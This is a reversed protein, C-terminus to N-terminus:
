LLAGHDRAGHLIRAIWLGDLVPMFYIVYVGVSFSRYKGTAFEPRREGMEPNTALLECATVIKELFRRAIGRSGTQFVIHVGIDVLDQQAAPSLQLVAM